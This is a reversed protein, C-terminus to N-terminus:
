RKTLEEEKKKEQGKKKSTLLLKEISVIVLLKPTLKLSGCSLSWKSRKM